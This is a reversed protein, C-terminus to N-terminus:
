QATQADEICMMIHDETLAIMELLGISSYEDRPCRLWDKIINYVAWAAHWRLDTGRMVRLCGVALAYRTRAATTPVGIARMVSEIRKTINRSEVESMDGSERALERARKRSLRTTSSPITQPQM